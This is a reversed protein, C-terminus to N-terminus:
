LAMKEQLRRPAVLRWNGGYRTILLTPPILRGDPMVLTTSEIPVVWSLSFALAALLLSGALLAFRRLDEGLGPSSIARADEGLDKRYKGSDSSSV